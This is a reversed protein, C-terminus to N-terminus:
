RASSQETLGAVAVSHEAEMAAMADMARQQQDAKAADLQERHLVGVQKNVRRARLAKPLALWDWRPFAV